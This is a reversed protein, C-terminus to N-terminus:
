TRDTPAGSPEAVQTQGPEGQPQPAAPPATEGSPPPQAPAAQQQAVGLEPKKEDDDKGTISEKFERM